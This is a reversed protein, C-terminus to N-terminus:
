WGNNTADIYLNDSEIIFSDTCFFSEIGNSESSLRGMYVSYGEKEAEVIRTLTKDSFLSLIYEEFTQGDKHWKDNEVFERALVIDNKFIDFLRTYVDIFISEPIVGVAEIFKPLTFNEKSVIVFCTSSSNTVFDTKIKM